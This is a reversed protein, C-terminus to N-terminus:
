YPWPVTIDTARPFPTGQYEASGGNGVYVAHGRGTTGPACHNADPNSTISGNSSTGYITGGEMTFIGSNGVYVGGGYNGAVNKKIVGGKMVFTGGNDAWGISVGGGNGSSNEAANESITGREMTFTGGSIWVGGGDMITRNGTIQGGRMEFVGGTGVYVGSRNNNALRVGDEMIFKGNYVTVLEGLRTNSGRPKNGGDIVISGAAGSKGLVLTGGMNVQFLEGESGSSLAITATGSDPPLITINKGYSGSINIADSAGTSTFSYNGAALQITKSGYSAIEGKLRNISDVTIINGGKDTGTGNECGAPIIAIIISAMVIIIKRKM